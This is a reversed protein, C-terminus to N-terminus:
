FAQKWTQDFYRNGMDIYSLQKWEIYSIGNENERQFAQKRLFAQKWGLNLDYLNLCKLEGIEMKNM